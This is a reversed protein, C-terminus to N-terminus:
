LDPSTVNDESSNPSAAFKTKKPTRLMEEVVDRSNVSSQDDFDSAVQSLFSTDLTRSRKAAPKCPSPSDIEESDSDESGASRTADGGSESRTSTPSSHPGSRLLEQVTRDMGAADIPDFDVTLNLTALHRDFVERYAEEDYDFTECVIKLLEPHKNPHPLCLKFIPLNIYDEADPYANIDPNLM